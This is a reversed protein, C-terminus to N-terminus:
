VPCVVTHLDLKNGGRAADHLCLPYRGATPPSLKKLFDLTFKSSELARELDHLSREVDSSIILPRFPLEIIRKTGTYREVQFRGGFRVFAEGNWRFHWYNVQCGDASAPTPDIECSSVEVVQFNYEAATSSLLTGPAFLTPLHGFLVLGKDINARRDGNYGRGKIAPEICDLLEHADEQLKEHDFGPCVLNILRTTSPTPDSSFLYFVDWYAILKTFPFVFTEERTSDTYNRCPNSLRQIVALLDPGFIIIEQPHKRGEHDQYQKIRFSRYTLKVKSNEVIRHSGAALEHQSGPLSPQGAQLRRDIEELRASIQCLVELIKSSTSVYTNEM